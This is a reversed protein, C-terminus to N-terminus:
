RSYWLTTRSSRCTYFDIKRSCKVNRGNRIGVGLLTNWKPVTPNFSWQTPSLYYDETENVGMNVDERGEKDEVIVMYMPLSSHAGHLRAQPKWAIGHEPEKM